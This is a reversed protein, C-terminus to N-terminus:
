GRVDTPLSISTNRCLVQSVSANKSGQMRYVYMNEVYKMAINMISLTGKIRQREFSNRGVEASRQYLHRRVLHTNIYCKQSACAHHYTRGEM